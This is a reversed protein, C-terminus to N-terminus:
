KGKIDQKLEDVDDCLKNLITTVQELKGQCNQILDMLRNERQENESQIREVFKYVFIGLAIVCAVPFGLTQVVTIFGEMSEGRKLPM